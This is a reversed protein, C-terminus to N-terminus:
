YKTNRPENDFSINSYSDRQWALCENSILCLNSEQFETFLVDVKWLRSNLVKLLGDIAKDKVIYAHTTLVNKAISVSENLPVTVKDSNGGLYLIDYDCPIVLEAVKDLFGETLEADDELVLHYKATGKIEWLLNRHSQLCGFHGRLRKNPASGFFVRQGNIADHFEYELEERKCVEIMKDRRDLRSPLNIIHAKM